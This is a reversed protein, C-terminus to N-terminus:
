EVRGEMRKAGGSRSRRRGRGRRKRRRGEMRRGRDRRRRRRRGRNRRRRRKGRRRGRGRRRRGRGRGRGELMDIYRYNYHANCCPGSAGVCHAPVCQGCISPSSGVPVCGGTCTRICLSRHLYVYMCLYISSTICMYMSIPWILSHALPPLLPATCVSGSHVQALPVHPHSPHHAPFPTHQIHVYTHTLPELTHPPTATLPRPTPPHPQTPSLQANILQSM